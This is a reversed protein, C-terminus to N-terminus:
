ARLPWFPSDLLALPEFADSDLDSDFVSVLFLSLEELLLSLAEDEVDLEDLEAEVQVGRHLTDRV